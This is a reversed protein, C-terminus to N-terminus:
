KLEEKYDVVTHIWRLVQYDNALTRLQDEKIKDYYQLLIKAGLLHDTLPTSNGM